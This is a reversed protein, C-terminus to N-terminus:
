SAAASICAEPGSAISKGETILCQQEIQQQLASFSNPDMMWLLFLQYVKVKSPLIAALMPHMEGTLSM